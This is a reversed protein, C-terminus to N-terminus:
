GVVLVTNKATLLAVDPKGKRIDCKRLNRLCIFIRMRQRVTAAYRSIMKETM